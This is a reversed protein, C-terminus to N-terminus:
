KNNNNNYYNSREAKSSQREGEIRIIARRFQALHSINIAFKSCVIM